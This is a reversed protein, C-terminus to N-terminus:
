AAALAQGRNLMSEAHELGQADGLMRAIELKRAPADLQQLSSLTRGDQENKSIVVQRDACAAVQPLHSIVLVQRERGMSALLEGVCWATEGGIGTDVEDFVALGPAGEMAGCGKLALVMRSLEGGSAVASLDRWPEGPNSMVQMRVQDMGTASFAEAAAGTRSEDTLCFRVQMGALALRDLLPRLATCLSEGAQRRAETLAAAHVRYKEAADDLASQAADEDWGATDLASLRQQWEDMLAQLGSEDCDHRRMAEQLRMLREETAQLEREDFSSDLAAALEPVVEGLLADVQELLDLGGKLGAHYDQVGALEHAARAILERANPEAEDLLAMSLGAAAHIQAHHRGAEVEAQLQDTLGPEIELAQLRALEERMWDVQQETDGRQQQLQQLARRAQQWDAFATKVNSLLPGTVRIDLLRRQFDPQLLAQHEHQGHLDLCVRGLQQLVRSPVPVGNIYARSRGDSNIIRRLILEDEVDIDQEALLAAIQKEGGQWVAMVEAREAGHRVWDASARTGFVAGLADVLMSKGAGTEGTFVTMGADLQLQVHEILAFQKIILSVLM